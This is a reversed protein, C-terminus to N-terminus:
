TTLICFPLTIRLAFTNTLYSVICMLLMITTRRQPRVVKKTDERLSVSVIDTKWM